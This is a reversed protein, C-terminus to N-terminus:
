YYEAVNALLHARAVDGAVSYDEDFALLVVNIGMVGAEDVIHNFVASYDSLLNDVPRGLVGEAYARLGARLDSPLVFAILARRKAEESKCIVQVEQAINAAEANIGEIVPHVAVSQLIGQWASPTLADISEAYAKISVNAM